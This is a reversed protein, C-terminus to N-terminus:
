IAAVRAWTGSRASEHIAEIALLDRLGEEGPTRPATGDLVCGAMHDMMAAFQNRLPLLVETETEGEPAIWMRRLDYDTAPDMRLTAKEGLVSLRKTERYSYSTSGQTLLGSAMRFQWTVRDEVEPFRPDTTMTALAEAPEEGSLYRMANVAYIGVDHLSGGGAIAKRIRWEDAPEEPKVPRGHDSTILRLPGLEGERVRRIAERNFGEYQARYATMLLRGAARAAAIMARADASTTALPKECLVHKGAALARETFPRHFINPLIVYVVQVEPNRAVEEFSDYSYTAPAGHQAAVRRAKGADGSVVAALRAKRCAGFAPLIQNLAFKGLGVVAFGVRREPPLFPEAELKPMPRGVLAPAAPQAAAAGAALVPAAALLTRRDM